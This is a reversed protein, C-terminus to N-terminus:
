VVSFSFVPGFSGCSTRAELADPARVDLAAAAPAPAPAASVFIASAMTALTAFSTFRM